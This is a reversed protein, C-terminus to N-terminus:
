WHPLPCAVTSSFFIVAYISVLRGVSHLIGVTSGTVMLSVSVGYGYSLVLYTIFLATSYVPIGTTIVSSFPIAPTRMHRLGLPLHNLIRILTSLM